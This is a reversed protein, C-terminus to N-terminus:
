EEITIVISSYERGKSDKVKSVDLNMIENFQDDTLDVLDGFRSHNVFLINGALAGITDGNQNIFVLGYIPDDVM